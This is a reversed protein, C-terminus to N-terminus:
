LREQESKTDRLSLTLLFTASLIAAMLFFVSQFPLFVLMSSSFAAGLINAVPWTTRFFAIIAVDDADIQKYFYSDKLVEIAAIGIRSLFLISAWLWLEQSDIWGMFFTVAASFLLSALLLEKEGYKKDALIGLPYQLFVFPLLMVTFIVGIQQWSFGEALLRLPMYIMMVAYFFNLAFAIAYARSLAHSSFTAKAAHWFNIKPQHVANDNRFAVISFLFLLMYGILVVFFVGQYGKHHLTTTALFPALLIGLNMVTLYLGRIRGSFGDQSFSELLVDFIVWIVSSAMMFLVLVPVSWYSETMRTLLAALLITSGLFLYLTRAKGMFRILPQLFFYIILTGSYAALYFFGVNTDQIVDAFYSSAMYIYFTDLFGLFFIAWNILRVKKKQYHERHSM